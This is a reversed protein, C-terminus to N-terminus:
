AQARSWSAFAVFGACALAVFLPLGHPVLDMALGALMPGLLAGAGWVLGMGAYIAVLETGQFRSGVMALMITYVGVFVGGWAFVMPYALWPDHLALPWLLAGAAAAAGLWVVLRRRDTRDGLWGIPLQLLIAGIMMASILRTAAAEEWGAEMAYLTLFSLGATEVAANLATTALALPALRAALVLGGGGPGAFRPAIVRPCAPLATAGVALAAGITYPASGATGVASLILPGAAFGISLAATYIAMARARGREGSLHNIWAESLAFLAEAACGVALRLPFWLWVSPVAPFSAIAAAALLLAGLVMARAGFRAVLSPLLPAAVLAGVAHMAANAGILTEGFGQEALDLAILPATLGYTLGFVAATAVVAARSFLLTGSHPGAAAPDSV